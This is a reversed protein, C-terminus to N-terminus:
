LLACHLAAATARKTPTILNFAGLDDDPGWRGWNSLEDIWRDYQTQSVLPLSPLQGLLVQHEAVIFFGVIVSGVFMAPRKWGTM